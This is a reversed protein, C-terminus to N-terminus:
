NLRAFALDSIQKYEPSAAGFVSKVYTKVNQAVDVLGVQDAYLVTNRNAIASSYATEADLHEMHKTKLDSLKTNLAVPTIDPENPRYEPIASLYLVYKSFNDIKANYSSNHKGVQNVENGDAKAAVLEQESLLKSARKGHVERALSKAQEITAASAGSVKVANLSRTTLQDLDDGVNMRVTRANLYTVQAMDVQDNAGQGNRGVLNLNALTLTANSPNYATGFSSVRSSLVNLNAVNQKHGTISTAKM